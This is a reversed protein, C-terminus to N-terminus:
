LRFSIHSFRFLAIHLYFASVAWERLTNFFVCIKVFTTILITYSFANDDNVSHEVQRCNHFLIESNPGIFIFTSIEREREKLYLFFNVSDARKQFRIIFYFFLHFEWLVESQVEALKRALFWFAINM